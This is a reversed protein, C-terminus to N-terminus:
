EVWDSNSNGTVSWNYPVKITSRRMAKAHGDAFVVNATLLHRYRVEGNAPDSGQQPDKDMQEWDAESQPFLGNSMQSPWWDFGASCHNDWEQIQTAEGFLITESPHTFAALSTIKVTMTSWDPPSVHGNMSYSFGTGLGSPCIRIDNSPKYQSWDNGTGSKIYPSVRFFWHNAGGPYSPFYSSFLSEDFDQAYMMAATGIQKLNSLCSTRRANERARAFVPFLISALISIIAIVVLLEILTFGPRLRSAGKLNKVKLTLYKSVMKTEPGHKTHNM